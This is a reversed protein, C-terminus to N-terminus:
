SRSLSSRVLFRESSVYPIGVIFVEWGAVVLVSWRNTLVLNSLELLVLERSSRQGNKLGGHARVNLDEDGDSVVALQECADLSEVSM